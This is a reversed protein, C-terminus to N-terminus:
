SRDVLVLGQVTVLVLLLFSVLLGPGPKQVGAMSPPDVDNSRGGVAWPQFSIIHLGLGKSALRM